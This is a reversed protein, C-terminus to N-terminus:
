SFLVWYHDLLAAGLPMGHNGERTSFHTVFDLLLLPPGKAPRLNERRGRMRKLMVATREEECVVVRCM